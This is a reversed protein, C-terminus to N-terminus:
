NYLEDLESNPESIPAGGYIPKVVKSFFNKMTLALKFAETVEQREKIRDSETMLSRCEVTELYRLRAILPGLIENDTM